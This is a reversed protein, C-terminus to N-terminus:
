VIYTIKTCTLSYHYTNIIVSSSLLILLFSNCVLVSSEVWPRNINEKMLFAVLRAESQSCELGQSNLKRVFNPLCEVAYKFILVM